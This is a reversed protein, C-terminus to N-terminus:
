FHDDFFPASKGSSSKAEVLKDWPGTRWNDKKQETMMWPPVDLYLRRSLGDLYPEYIDRLKGIKEQAAASNQARPVWTYRVGALQRALRQAQLALQQMDPHKVKWRGSMQEVVLKSDM